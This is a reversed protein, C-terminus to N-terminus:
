AAKGKWSAWFDECAQGIKQAAEGGIGKLDTLQPQWGNPLPKQYDVLDGLTAIPKVSEGKKHVPEALKNLLGQSISLSALPVERWSEDEVPQAAGNADVDAQENIQEAPPDKYLTPQKPKGREDARRDILDLLDSQALEFAKKRASAVEKAGEYRVQLDRVELAQKDILTRTEADYEELTPTHSLPPEADEPDVYPKEEAKHFVGDEGQVIVFPEQESSAELEAESISDDIVIEAQSEESM